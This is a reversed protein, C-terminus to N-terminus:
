AGEIKGTVVRLRDNPLLDIGWLQTRVQVTYLAAEMVLVQSRGGWQSSWYDSEEKVQVILAAGGYGVM